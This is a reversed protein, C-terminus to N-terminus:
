WLGPVLRRTKSAYADYEHGFQERMMREEPRLRLAFLIALAILYPPGAIWNPILVAQGVGYLLLALYMPHRVTRYIGHTVLRHQERVELTVSWNAGLDAHSRYLLALGFALGALGNLFPLVRLPLDAFAFLPTAVWLLAPLFGLGVLALLIRERPGKRNEVIKPRGHARHVYAPIAILLVTSAVVVAKVIWPSV